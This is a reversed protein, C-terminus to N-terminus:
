TANEDPKDAKPLGVRFVTGKSFDGKVRDEVWIRGGFKEVITSVISLGLGFGKVGTMGTAFREFIVNKRDDPIGRGRDIVSVIWFEGQPTVEDSVQVEVRVRRATDFKISNSIINQFVDDLYQNALTFHTNPSLSSVITIKRDPTAKTVTDIAGAVSKQIDIPVYDTDAMMRLKALKRINDILRANNKVQILARDAYKRQNDDLRKDQLLLEIYGMIGQNFNNIDHTMLDNLLAIENAALVQKEYLKANELAISAIGAMIELVEIHDASPIRLDNPEDVVLYGTLRGSRDKL